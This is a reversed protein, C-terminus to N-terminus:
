CARLRIALPAARPGPDARELRILAVQVTGSRGAPTTTANRGIGYAFVATGDTALDLRERTGPGNLSGALVSSRWRSGPIAAPTTFTRGRDSSVAWAAGIGANGRRAAPGALDDITRLSVIVVRDRAVIGPRFASQLRDGVAAPRPVTSWTWTRGQDGSHGVRITGAPAGAPSPAFDAIALYVDGNAPDVDLGHSWMPDVYTHARTGPAPRDGLTWANPSITAALVPRSVRVTGGSVSVRAIAFGIRGVNARRGREFVRTPDWRRLDAQYWSVFASGDPATRIRYGFRWSKPFGAPAAARPVSVGRWTRGFDTSALVRVGSGRRHAAPFNYAVWVTGYRPSLPNRDVTLDPMGGVWAPTAVVVRLRSWTAGEDDSWALAVRLDGGCRRTTTGAWYLRASGPEPGPGWAVASHYSSVRGTGDWPRTRTSRWTRGGDGSLAIVAELRAGSCAPETLRREYAVALTAPDTPHTAVIPELAGGTAHSAALVDHWGALISTISRATPAVQSEPSSPTTAVAAAASPAPGVISAAAPPTVSPPSATAPSTATPAPAPASGALVPRLAADFAGALSRVFTATLHHGDRYLIMGDRAVPCPTSPCVAAVVDVLAAGSRKAAVRERIGFTVDFAEGRPIACAHVDSPHRSLCAPIDVDTRPSDVVIAVPAKLQGIARAMAEGQEKASGAAASVPRIGRQATAVIVLDPRADNIARIALRRWTACETYERKAFPHYVAMDVYPCSAKVFPILRWGNRRALVNLAPFWHGAHSDGILAITIRGRPDGYVCDAPQTGELWTFCGDDPLRERDTRAQGLAPSVDRPLRVGDPLRRAPIETWAITSAAPAPRGSATSASSASSASPSAGSTATTEMSAASPEASRQRTAAAPSAPTPGAAHPVGGVSAPGDDITVTAATPLGTGTGAIAADASVGLMASWTVVGVITATGLQLSLRTGTRRPGRAKRFPEEVFAWSLWAVLVALAMLALTVIPDLPAGYAAVPLVLLPWHWLYLSYSIRGLFRLPAMRLLRGPGHSREGAVILLVAATTPLLATLGPYPVSGDITAAAVGLM